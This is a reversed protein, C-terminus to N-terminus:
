LARELDHKAQTPFPGLLCLAVRLRGCCGERVGAGHGEDRSAGALYNLQGRTSAACTATLNTLQLGGARAVGNGNQQTGSDICLIGAACRSVGTDATSNPDAAASGWRFPVAGGLLVSATTSNPASFCLPSNAATNNTVCFRGAAGGFGSGLSYLMWDQGGTSANQVHFQTSTATSYVSFPNFTSSSVMMGPSTATTAAPDCLGDARTVCLSGSPMKVAIPHTDVFAKVGQPSEMNPNTAGNIGGAADYWEVAPYIALAYNRVMTEAKNPAVTALVSAFWQFDDSWYGGGQYNTASYIAYNCGSYSTYPAGGSAPICGQQEYTTPSNRVYGYPNTLTSFNTSFYNAIATRQASTGYGLFAWLASSRVDLNSSNTGTATVLLGSSGDILNAQIGSDVLSKENAYAAANATDGVRAAVQAMLENVREYWVNANAVIGTSRMAEMFLTGAIFEDGASVTILHTTANKPVLALAIQIHGNYANYATTCLATSVKGCYVNLATAMGMWGDAPVHKRYLDFGSYYGYWADSTGNARVTLPFNGSSDRGADFKAMINLINPALFKNPNAILTLIFDDIYIGNGAYAPGASYYPGSGDSFQGINQAIAADAIQTILSDASGPLVAGSMLGTADLGPFGNPVNKEKAFDDAPTYTGDGNSRCVRQMNGGGKTCGSGVSADSLIVLKGVAPVPSPLTAFTYTGTVADSGNTGDTGKSGATGPTGPAGKLNGTLTWTGNKMYVDGTASNLYSDGNSGVSSSPVGTGQLFNTGNTGPTGNGGGSGSGAGTDFKFVNAVCKGMKYNGNADPATPYYLSPALCSTPVTPAAVIGPPLVAVAQVPAYRDFAFTSGTVTNAPLTVEFLPRKDPTVTGPGYVDVLYRNAAPRTFAATSQDPVSFGNPLAGAVVPVVFLNGNADQGDFYGDATTLSSAVGNQDVAKITLTGTVPQGGSMIRTATFATTLNPSQAYAHTSLCLAAIVASIRKM